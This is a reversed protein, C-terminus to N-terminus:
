RAAEMAEVSAFGSEALLRDREVQIAAAVLLKEEHSLPGGDDEGLVTHFFLDLIGRYMPREAVPRGASIRDLAEARTETSM